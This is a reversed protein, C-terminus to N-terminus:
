FETENYVCIIYYEASSKAKCRSSLFGMSRTIQRDSHIFKYFIWVLGYFRLKHLHVMKSNEKESIDWIEETIDYLQQGFMWRIMDNEKWIKCLHFLMLCSLFMEICKECQEKYREMCWVFVRCQQARTIGLHNSNGLVTTANHMLAERCATNNEREWSQEKKNGNHEPEINVSIQLGYRRSKKFSIDASYTTNPTNIFTQQDLLDVNDGHLHLLINRM